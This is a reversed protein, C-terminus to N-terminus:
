LVPPWREATREVVRALFTILEAGMARTFGSPDPSAFILLGARREGWLTLRVLAMSGVASARDGFFLAEDVPAGLRHRGDPGLLLDVAGPPAGRWGSPVGGAPAEATEVALAGGTLGFRGIAAADVRHALDANNRAELLDVIAAHTETQAAYNAEALKEIAQRQSSERNWAAELRALAAPGFDVVNAAIPRVGLARMLGEDGLILEPKAILLDRVRGLGIPSTAHHTSEPLEQDSAGNM